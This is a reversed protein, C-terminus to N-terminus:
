KGLRKALSPMLRLSNENAIAALEAESFVGSSLLKDMAPRIYKEPVMPYDFGILLQSAPVLERLSVLAERSTTMALDFHITRLGAVVEDYSLQKEYGTGREETVFSIRDALYPLTGGGHTAIYHFDPYKQRLGSCVLSVVARTSDFVFELMGTIVPVDVQASYVPSVPHVFATAQRRNLEAFMPEFRPHGPYAGEFSTQLCVGDFGLTDLAYDLEALTADIDQLPLAAFAGFRTPYRALIEASEDNMRRALSVAEDGSLDKTGIPNSLVMAQIGYRDMVEIALEPSWEPIAVGEIRPDPTGFKKALMQYWSPLMSHAHVDIADHITPTM